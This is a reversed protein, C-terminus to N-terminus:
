HHPAACEACGHARQQWTHLMRLTTLPLPSACRSSRRPPVLGATPSALHSNGLLTPTGGGGLRVWQERVEEPVDVLSPLAAPEGEEHNHAMSATNSARQHTYLNWRTCFNESTSFILLLPGEPGFARM